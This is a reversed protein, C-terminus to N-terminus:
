DLLLDDIDRNLLDFLDLDRLGRHHGLSRVVHERLFIDLLQDTNTLIGLLPGQDRADKVRGQADLLGPVQSPPLDLLEFVPDRDRGILLGAVGPVNGARGRPGVQLGPLHVVRCDVPNRRLAVVKHEQRMLPLWVKVASKLVEHFFEAPLQLLLAILHQGVFDMEVQQPMRLQGM